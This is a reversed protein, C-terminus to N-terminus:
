LVVNHVLEKQGAKGTILNNVINLNYDSYGRIYLISDTNSILNRNTYGVVDWIILKANDPKKLKNWKSEIDDSQQCDTILLVINEGHYTDLLTSFNTGYGVYENQMAEACLNVNDSKFAVEKTWSATVYAKTNPVSLVISAVLYNAIDSALLISDKNVFTHMSGSNDASCRIKINEPIDKFAEKAAKMFIDNLANIWKRTKIMKSAAYLRMFFLGSKEYAKYSSIKDAVLDIINDPILVESSKGTRLTYVREITALNTILAAYSLGPLFHEYVSQLQEQSLNGFTFKIEDMQLKAKDINALATPLDIHDKQLSQITEDLLKAREFTLRRPQHKPKFIYKLYQENETTDAIRTLRCINELKSTYRTSNYENLIQNLYNNITKKISSGLGRNNDKIKQKMHGGPRICSNRCIDVFDHLLKINKRIIRPFAKQFLTKDDLTSLYVLWIIPMLKMKLEEAAYIAYKTALEPYKALARNFVYDLGQIADEIDTYFKNHLCGLTFVTCLDDEFSTIYAKGNEYTTVSRNLQSIEKIM